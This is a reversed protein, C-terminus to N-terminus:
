VVEAPRAAAPELYQDIKQVLARPSFPKVLFDMAGAEVSQMVVNRESHGTIIVVPVAALREIGKMRRTIEVGNLDPLMVDMLVLDPVSKAAMRLAEAGTGAFSLAFRAPSLLHKYIQRQTEEDEVILISHIGTDLEAVAKRVSAMRPRYAAPMSSLCERAPELMRAAAQIRPRVDNDRLSQLRRKVDGILGSGANMRTLEDTLGTSFSQVADGLGQVLDTIGDHAAILHRDGKSMIADLIPEVEAVERAAELAKRTAPAARAHQLARMALRVSMALRPHDFTVPWYLVYDDFCDRRCLSYAERVEEKSCLLITRHPKDGISASQRFLGLYFQEAKAIKDFALILVDPRRADFDAVARDPDSTVHITAFENNLSKRIIEVDAAVDTAILIAVDGPTM